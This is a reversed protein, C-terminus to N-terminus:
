AARQSRPGQARIREAAAIMQEGLAAREEDTFARRLLPLVLGDVKTRAHHILLDELVRLVVRRRDDDGRDVGGLHTIMLAMIEHEYAAQQMLQELRTCTGDCAHQLVEAESEAHIRVSQALSRILDPIEDAREGHESLRHIRAVLRVAEDHDKTIVDLIDM